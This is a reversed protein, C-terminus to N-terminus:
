SPKIIREIEAASIKGCSNLKVTGSDIMRRLTHRHIGLETAADQINYQEPRSKPMRRLALEAGMEAAKRITDELDSRQIMVVNM